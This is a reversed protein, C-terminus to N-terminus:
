VARRIAAALATADAVQSAERALRPAGDDHALAVRRAIETGGEVFSAVDSLEKPELHTGQVRATTLLEQVDPLDHFPQRGNRRLLGGGEGTPALAERVDAAETLPRLGEIRARGPASGAHSRVLARVPEFELTRFTNGNLRRCAGGDVSGAKTGVLSGDQGRG